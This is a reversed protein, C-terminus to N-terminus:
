NASRCFDIGAEVIRHFGFRADESKASCIGSAGSGDWLKIM